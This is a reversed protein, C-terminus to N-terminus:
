SQGMLSCLYSLLRLYIIAQFLPKVINEHFTFTKGGYIHGNCDGHFIKGVYRHFIEM